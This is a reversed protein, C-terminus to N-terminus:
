FDHKGMKSRLKQVLEPRCNYYEKLANEVITSKSEEMQKSEELVLEKIRPHVYTELQHAKKYGANDYKDM